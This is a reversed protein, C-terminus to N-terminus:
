GLSRARKKMREGDSGFIACSAPLQWRLGELAEGDLGTCGGLYLIELRDLGRLGLLAEAGELGTCESLSLLKLAPLPPLGQTSRLGTCGGLDLEELRDLGRLGLLAEAGELGTCGSLDLRKLAPLPPLGQTSRLGTCSSLSLIELRDLGHLGQLAAAGELGTCNRLSLTKLKKLGALAASDTLGICGSLDLEELPFTAAFILLQDATVPTQSLDLARLMALQEPKLDTVPVGAALAIRERVFDPLSSFKFSRVASKRKVAPAPPFHAAVAVSFPVQLLRLFLDSTWLAPDAKPPSHTLHELLDACAQQGEKGGPDPRIVKSVEGSSGTHQVASLYM